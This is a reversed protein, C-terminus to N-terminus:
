APVSRYSSCPPWPRGLRFMMIALVASTLALGVVARLLAHDDRDVPSAM